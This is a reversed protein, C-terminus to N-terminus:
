AAADTRGFQPEAAIQRYLWGIDDDSVGLIKMIGRDIKQRVPDEDLRNVELLEDGCTDDFLKDFAKVQRKSLSDFDLMPLIRFMNVGMVGRGQHQGGAYAWYTLIGFVSNFWVTFAKEYAPNHLIINPWARGGVYKERTYAAAIRQSTYRLQTNLYTRTATDLVERVREPEVSHRKELAMDPEVVMRRQTESDNGGLSKYRSTRRLPAKEFPGRPSGDKKVGWIDRHLKGTKAYKTFVSMKIGDINGHAMNYAYSLLRTNSARGVWWRAGEAPCDLMNGIVSKGLMISTDGMDTELSNPMIRRIAKATELAELNTHPLRDLLVLKIRAVSDAAPIKKAASIKRGILLVENMGTDSSYTKTISGGGGDAAVAGDAVAGDAVAGDAVAGDAVAGDAVAGNQPELGAGVGEVGAGVSGGVFVIMLDEYYRSLLARVDKWSDGAAVTAPLIIGFTGGARLTRNTIAMFYSGLGANGHACVGGFMRKNHGAMKLQIDPPIGFVAFPPVPDTHAAGHNTARVYPPNMLVYDCSEDNITAERTSGLGRRGGHRYGSVTFKANSRILDLSGLDPEDGSGVRKERKEGIPMQYIRMDDCNAQPFLGSLNSATLHTATPLIDFGYVSEELMRKHTLHDYTGPSNNMVHRVAATLLMGTGCAFDAIRLSELNGPERWVPDDSGPMVLGALLTAAEPRTYFAAARKRDSGLMGQYLAGYVDGSKSVGLAMIQSVSRHVEDLVRAATAAPLIQLISM